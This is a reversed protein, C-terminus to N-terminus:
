GPSPTERARLTIRSQKLTDEIDPVLPHAGGLVRRVTRGLEELTTVSERLEDLTASSDRYLSEAYIKKMMLLIHDNERLVRQAVPITRRLLSKVEEFRQLGLLSNACNNAAILTEKDSSLRRPPDRSELGFGLRPPSSEGDVQGAGAPSPRKSGTLRLFGMTGALPRYLYSVLM